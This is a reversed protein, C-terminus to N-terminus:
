LLAMSATLHRIAPLRVGRVGAKKCPREMLHQDITCLPGFHM